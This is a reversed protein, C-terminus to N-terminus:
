ISRIFFLMFFVKKNSQNNRFLRELGYGFFHFLSDSVIEQRELTEQKKTEDKKSIILKISGLHISNSFSKKNNRM